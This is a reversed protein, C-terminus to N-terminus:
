AIGPLRRSEIWADVRPWMRVARYTVGTDTSDIGFAGFAAPPGIQGPQWLGRIDELAALKLDAPVTEFGVEYVVTWRGWSLSDHEIYGDATVTIDDEYVTGNPDTLSAVSLVPWRSPLIRLIGDYGTVSNGIETYSASPVGGYNSAVHETVAAVYRGLEDDHEGDDDLNLNELVEDLTVVDAM